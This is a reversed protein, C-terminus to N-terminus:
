DERKPKVRGIPTKKKYEAPTMKKIKAPLPRQPGKTISKM